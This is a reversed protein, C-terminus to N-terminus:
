VEGLVSRTVGKLGPPSEVDQASEDEVCAKIVSSTARATHSWTYRARATQAAQSGLRQRLDPSQRAKDLVSCLDREDGAVFLFGNVGDQIVETMQGLRSAVVCTGSVMYEFLKIPSFYFSDVRCFPAVAVDMARLLDPVRDHPVAGTFIVAEGMNMEAAKERLRSEGPGTGVILLRASPDDLRLLAFASLLVDVGHWEKLSGAFGIVFEDVFGLKTRCVERSPAGDFLAVDVGNPIVHLKQRSVGTGALKDALVASVTIVADARFLVRQEIERALDMLQLSRFTRAEEVLPANVETILPVNLAEALDIGVHGFLSLREVIADPPDSRLAELAQGHVWANYILPRLERAVSDRLGRDQLWRKLLRGTQEAPPCGGPLLPRVPHDRNGCGPTNAEDPANKPSLLLVEHGLDCLARTIARLHVSAGKTGSPAIGFDSCVYLLRM